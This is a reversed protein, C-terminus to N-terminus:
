ELIKFPIDMSPLQLILNQKQLKLKIKKEILWDETNQNETLDKPWNIPLTHFPASAIMNQKKCICLLEFSNGIKQHLEYRGVLYEGGISYEISGDAKLDIFWHKMAPQTLNQYLLKTQTSLDLFSKESFRQDQDVQWRGILQDSPHCASLTLVILISLSLNIFSLNFLRDHHIISPHIV